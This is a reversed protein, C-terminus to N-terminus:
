LHALQLASLDHQGSFRQVQFRQGRIDEGDDLLPGSLGADGHDAVLARVGHLQGVDVAAGEVQALHQQIDGAVRHLIVPHPSADGRAELAQPHFVLHHGIAPGNGVGADAHALRKQLMDEIGEGLFVNGVSLAGTQAHGDDLVQHFLHM